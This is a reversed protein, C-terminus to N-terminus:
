HRTSLLVYHTDGDLVSHPFQLYILEPSDTRHLRKLICMLKLQYLCLSSFCCRPLLLSSTSVEGGPVVEPPDIPTGVIFKLPTRSPFPTM